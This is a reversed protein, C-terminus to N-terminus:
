SANIAPERFGARCHPHVLGSRIRPLLPVARFAARGRTGAPGGGTARHELWATAMAAGCPDGPVPHWHFLTRRCGTGPSGQPACPALSFSHSPKESCTLTQRFIHLYIAILTVAPFRWLEFGHQEFDRPCRPLIWYFFISGSGPFVAFLLKWAAPGTSASPIRIKPM